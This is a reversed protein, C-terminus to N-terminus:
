VHATPMRFSKVSLTWSRPSSLTHAGLSWFEIMSDLVAQVMGKHVILDFATYFFFLKEDQFCRKHQYSGTETRNECYLWESAGNVATIISSLQDVISIIEQRHDISKEVIMDGSSAEQKM